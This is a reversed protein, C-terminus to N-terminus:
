PALSRVFFPLTGLALYTAFMWHQSAREVAAQTTPSPGRLFRYASAAAWVGAVGITALELVGSGVRILALAALFAAAFLLALWVLPAARLGWASTYSDVGVREAEPARVKRGIEILMGNLFTIGLFLALARPAAREAALWDLGTTYTDVLPMIAMHTLLYATPRARLWDRVFFERTMLAAWVAVIGMPVLLAPLTLANLAVVIGLAVGGIARLEGLTV